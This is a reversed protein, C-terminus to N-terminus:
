RKSLYCSNHRVVTSLLYIAPVGSVIPGKILESVLCAFGAM